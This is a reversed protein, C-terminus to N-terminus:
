KKKNEYKYDVVDWDNVITKPNPIDYDEMDTLNAIDKVKQKQIRRILKNYSEHLWGRVKTWNHKKYSRSM